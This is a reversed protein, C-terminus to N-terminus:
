VEQYHPASVTRKKKIVGIESRGTEKCREKCILWNNGLNIKKKTISQLLLQLCNFVLVKWSKGNM